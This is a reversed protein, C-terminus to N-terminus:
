STWRRASCGASRNGKRGRLRGLLRNLRGAQRLALHLVRLPQHLHTPPTFRRSCLHLAPVRSAPAATPPGQMSYTGLGLAWATGSRGRVRGGAGGCSASSYSCCARWACSSASASTRRATPGSCALHASGGPGPPTAAWSRQQQGSIRDNRCCWCLGAGRSWEGGVGTPLCSRRRSAASASCFALPRSRSAMTHQHHHSFPPPAQQEGQRSAAWPLSHSRLPLRLPGSVVKGALHSCCARWRQVAHQSHQARDRPALRSSCLVHLM